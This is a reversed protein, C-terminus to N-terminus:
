SVPVELLVRTGGTSNLTLLGGIADARTQMNLLGRGTGRNEGLGVGNDKIDLVVGDHMSSSPVSTAKAHKVINALSEKYIRFLNMVVTSGPRTGQDLVSTEISLKIGHPEVIASGLSRLEAAVAQWSLERTDLSHIFGRIELLNERSLNAITALSSRIDVINDSKQALEALLNINTSLGGIGDHLDKLIKEKEAYLHEREEESRKIGTIDMLTAIVAPKGEYEIVGANMFAWREQGDKTVVKFEYYPTQEPNNIRAQGRSRVLERHDPHVIAWFEM